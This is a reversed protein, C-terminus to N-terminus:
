YKMTNLLIYSGLKPACPLQLIFETNLRRYGMSQRITSRCVSQLSAPVKSAELLSERIHAFEPLGLLIPERLSYDTVKIQLTEALIKQLGCHFKANKISDLFTFLVSCGYSNVLDPCAGHEILAHIVAEHGGTGAVHLPSNGRTDQTNVMRKQYDLKLLKKVYKANQSRDNQCVHNLVTGGSADKVTVDIGLDIVHFLFEFSAYKAATLAPTNGSSDRANFDAGYKSLVDISWTINHKAALHGLTEEESNIQIDINAGSECLYVLCQKCREHQQKLYNQYEIDEKSMSDEVRVLLRPWYAIVLQVPCRGLKDTLNPEAGHKLLMDVIKPRRYICAVHLPYAIIDKYVMHRDPAYVKTAFLIGENVDVGNSILQEAGKTDNQVIKDHLALSLGVSKGDKRNVLIDKNQRGGIDTETQKACKVSACTFPLCWSM